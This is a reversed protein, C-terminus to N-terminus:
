RGQQIKKNTPLEVVEKGSLEARETAAPAETRGIGGLESASIVERTGATGSEADQFGVESSGQTDPL